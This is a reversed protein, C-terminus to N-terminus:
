RDKQKISKYIGYLKKVENPKLERYEGPKLDGIELFEIKTRMLKVLNMEGAEFM